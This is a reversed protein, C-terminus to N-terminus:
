ATDEKRLRADEDISRRLKDLLVTILNEWYKARVEDIRRQDDLFRALEERVLELHKEVDVGETAGKPGSHDRLASAIVPILWRLVMGLALIGAVMAGGKVLVDTM